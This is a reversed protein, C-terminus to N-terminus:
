SAGASPYSQLQAEIFSLFANQVVREFWTVPPLYTKGALVAALADVHFTLTVVSSLAFERLKEPMQAAFNRQSGPFPGWKPLFIFVECRFRIPNRVECGKGGSTGSQGTRRPDAHLGLRIKLRWGRFLISPRRRRGRGQEM